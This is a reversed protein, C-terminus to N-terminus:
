GEAVPHDRYRASRIGAAVHTRNPRLSLAELLKVVDDAALDIPIEQLGGLEAYATGFGRLDPQAFNCQM